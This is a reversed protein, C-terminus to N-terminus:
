NWLHASQAQPELLFRLKASEVAPACGRESELVPAAGDKRVEGDLWQMRWCALAFAGALLVVALPALLVM